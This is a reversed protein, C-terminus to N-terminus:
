CLCTLVGLELRRGQRKLWRLSGLLERRAQGLQVLLHTRCATVRTPPVSEVQVKPAVDSFHQTKMIKIKRPLMFETKEWQM